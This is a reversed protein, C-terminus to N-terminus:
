YYHANLDIFGKKIPISLGFGGDLGYDYRNYSTETKMDLKTKQTPYREDSSTLITKGSMFWAGSFGIEANASLKNKFIPYHGKLLIPLNLYNAVLQADTFNGPLIYGPMCKSGRQIWSPEIGVSLYKSFQRDLTVSAGYGWITLNAAENYTGEQYQQWAHNVTGKLGISFQAKTHFALITTLFLVLGITRKAQM